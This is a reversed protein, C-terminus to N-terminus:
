MRRAEIAQINIFNALAMIRRRNAKAITADGISHKEASHPGRTQRGSRGTGGSLTPAIGTGNSTGMHGVIMLVSNLMRGQIVMPFAETQRGPAQVGM